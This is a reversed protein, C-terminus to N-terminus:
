CAHEIIISLISFSVYIFNASYVKARKPASSSRAYGAEEESSCNAKEKQAYSFPTDEEEEEEKAEKTWEM